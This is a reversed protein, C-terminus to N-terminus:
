PAKNHYLDGFPETEMKILNLKRPMYSPLETDSLGPCLDMTMALHRQAIRLVLNVYPM